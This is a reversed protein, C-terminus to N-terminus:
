WVLIGYSLTFLRASLYNFSPALAIDVSEPIYIERRCSDFPLHLVEMYDSLTSENREMLINAKM